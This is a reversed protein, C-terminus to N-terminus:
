REEIASKYDLLDQLIAKKLVGRFFVMPLSKLKAVLGQAITEHSSTVKTNGGEESLTLTTIFVFGDMEARTKYFRNEEAETIWKDIAALSGFYLRTERWKLGAFGQAPEHLVEVKEIGSVIAAANRIDAITKWVAAQSGNIAIQAEVKM